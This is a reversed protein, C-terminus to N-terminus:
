NSGFATSAIRATIATYLVVPTKEGRRPEEPRPRFRLLARGERTPRRSAQEGEGRRVDGAIVDEHARLVDQV